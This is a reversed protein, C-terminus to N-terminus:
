PLLHDNRRFRTHHGTIKKTNKKKISYYIEKYVIFIAWNETYFLFCDNSVHILCAITVIIMTSNHPNIPYLCPATAGLCVHPGKM